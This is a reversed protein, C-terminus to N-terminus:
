IILFKRISLGPFLDLNIAWSNSEIHDAVSSIPYLGKSKFTM